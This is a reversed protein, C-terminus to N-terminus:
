QLIELAIDLKWKTDKGQVRPSSKRESFFGRFSCTNKLAKQKKSATKIDKKFIHKPVHM